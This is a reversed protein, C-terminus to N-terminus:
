NKWVMLHRILTTIVLRSRRLSHFHHSTKACSPGKSKRQQWELGLFQWWAWNQRGRERKWMVAALLSSSGAAPLLSAWVALFGFQSWSVGSPACCATAFIMAGFFSNDRLYARRNGLWMSFLWGFAKLQQEIAILLLSSKTMSGRGGNNPEWYKQLYLTVRWPM